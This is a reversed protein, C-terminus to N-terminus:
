IGAGPGLMTALTGSEAPMDFVLRMLMILATGGALGFLAIGIPLGMAVVSGFAVLLIVVAGLVGVLEAAGTEVEVAFSPLVGGLEVQRGADGSAGVAEEVQTDAEEGLVRVVGACQG